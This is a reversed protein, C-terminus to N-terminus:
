WAMSRHFFVTTFRFFFQSSQNISHNIICQRTSPNIIIYHIPRCVSLWGSSCVSLFSMRKLQTPLYTIISSRVSPRVSLCVSLYISLCVSLYISLIYYKHLTCCPEFAFCSSFIMSWMRSLCFCCRCYKPIGLNIHININYIYINYIYM